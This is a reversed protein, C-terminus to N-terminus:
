NQQLDKNERKKKRRNKVQTNYFLALYFSFFKMKKVTM